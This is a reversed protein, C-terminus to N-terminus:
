SNQVTDLQGKFFRIRPGDVSVTGYKCDNRTKLVVQGHGNWIMKAIMGLRILKIQRQSLDM